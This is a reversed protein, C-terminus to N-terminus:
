RPNTAWELTNSVGRTELIEVRPDGERVFFGVQPRAEGGEKVVEAANAPM